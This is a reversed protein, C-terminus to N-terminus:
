AAGRLSMASLVHQELESLEGNSSGLEAETHVLKADSILGKLGYVKRVRDIDTSGRINEDSFMLATGDIICDLHEQVSEATISASTAVKIAIISRTDEGIGFRRFSETINNNPNLSYVIESHVNKSRQRGQLYDQLARYVAALAHVTSIIMTADIFAYEFETRGALLAARLEAANTVDAFLGVHVPMDPPLHQLRYTRVSM